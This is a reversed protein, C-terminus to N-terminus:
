AAKEAKAKLAQVFGRMPGALVNAFSTLPAKITWVVKAVLDQKSPLKALALVEAATMWSGNLIGGTLKLKKNTKSFAHILSAPQVEDAVGFAVGVNGRFAALPTADLGHKELAKKLLTKKVGVFSVSAARLNKRLQTNEKVTLGDTAAFVAVKMTGLHDAFQKLTAEKQQRSKAM